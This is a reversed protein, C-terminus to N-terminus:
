LSEFIKPEVIHDEVNEVSYEDVYEPVESPFIEIGKKEILKKMRDIVREIKESDVDLYNNFFKRNKEEELINFVVEMDPRKKSGEFLEICGTTLGVCYLLADLPEHIESVLKNLEEKEKKSVRGFEITDDYSHKRNRYLMLMQNFVSTFDNYFEFDQVVVGKDYVSRFKSYGM